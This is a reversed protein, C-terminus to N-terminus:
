SDGNVNGTTDNSDVKTFYKTKNECDKINWLMDIELTISTITISDTMFKTNAKGIIHTFLLIINSM